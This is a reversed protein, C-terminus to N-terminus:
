GIPALPPTNQIEELAAALVPAKKDHLYPL